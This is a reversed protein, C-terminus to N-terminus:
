VWEETREEVEKYIIKIENEVNSLSYQNVFEKNYQGIRNMEQKDKFAKELMEKYSEPTNSKVQFGTVGDISYDKIGHVDTSIIPLGSAMAEIAAIGLGERKSPFAFIDAISCVESIDNRYGLIKVQNEIGLSISLNKLHSELPGTGCVVYTIKPNEMLSLAKIVVEHNKNANLEGTSLVVLNDIPIDLELKKNTKNISYKLDFRELNVGVGPIYKLSKNKFKKAVNYDEQNITILVDTFRSLWKEIPYYVLWNLLPAGKYFHFGHATYLVKINLDRCVLRAIASAIPTHTHVIEYKEELLIKKLEQYARLNKKNLPSRTFSVIHVKCGLQHIEEKVEQDISFAVDVEHGQEILLKIHPILFTNVTQSVTTVYLIKM